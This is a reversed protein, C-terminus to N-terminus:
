NGDLNISNKDDIRNWPVTNVKMLKAIFLYSLVITISALISLLLKVGLPSMPPVSALIAYTLFGLTVLIIISVHYLLASHLGTKNVFVNDTIAWSIGSVVIGALVGYLEQERHDIVMAGVFAIISISIVMLGMQKKNINIKKIM